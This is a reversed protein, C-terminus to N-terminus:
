SRLRKRRSMVALSRVPTASSGVSRHVFHLRAKCPVERSKRIM